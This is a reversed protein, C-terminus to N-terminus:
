LVGIKNVVLQARRRFEDENTRKVVRLEGLMFSEFTADAKGTTAPRADAAVIGSSGGVTLARNEKAEIDKSDM